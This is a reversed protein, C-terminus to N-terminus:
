RGAARALGSLGSSRISAGRHGFDRDVRQSRDRKELPRNPNEGIFDRNDVAVPAPRVRLEGLADAAKRAGELARADSRAVPHGYQSGIDGLQEFGMERHQPRPRHQNGDVGPEVGGLDTVDQIVGAGLDHDGIDLQRGLDDVSGISEV